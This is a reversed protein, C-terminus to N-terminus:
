VVRVEGARVEVVQGTRLRSTDVGDVAPIDAIAAGAAVVPEMRDNLIALPGRGAEKLAYIVYSGVTSGKGCPFALVKGAVSQGALEHDPETIVGTAPDVNGFFGIPSRSCLVEGRATGPVVATGSLSAAHGRPTPPASPRDPSPAPPVAAPSPRRPASCEGRLAAEVCAELPMLRVELGKSRLYYATKASNTVVRHVGLEALPAVVLCMDRLVQGGAQRIREALGSSAARDYVARSTTVWLRSAAARGRLLQAVRRVEDLSAHPCGVAVVDVPGAEADFLAYDAELDAVEIEPLGALADRVGDAEPTVGEVHFLAVGGASALAAALAKLCETRLPAPPPEALVFYPVGGEVARGVHLGLAGGDAPTRLPCAVRVVHTPCRHADLHYGCRVTKGLIAAALASPGGERNTRAGLVSNAWCVASSESWALHQGRRPRVYHDYPTCTLSPTVGMRCLADVVRRQREAFHEGIGLEKWASLDMGCPNMFAPVRVRAGAEAWDELFALGAEGINAYSVGAVQVSAVEVLDPESAGASPALRALAHLIKGARRDPPNDRAASLPPLHAASAM